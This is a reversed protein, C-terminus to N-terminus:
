RASSPSSIESAARERNTDQPIIRTGRPAPRACCATSVQRPMMPM